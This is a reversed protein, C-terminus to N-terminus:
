AIRLRTHFADMGGGMFFSVGIIPVTLDQTIKYHSFTLLVTFLAVSFATWELLTHAFAGSLSEFAAETLAEPSAGALREGDLPIPENGFDFGLLTLLAPAACIGLFVLVIPRPIRTQM